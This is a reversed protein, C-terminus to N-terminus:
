SGNVMIYTLKRTHHILQKSQNSIKFATSCKISTHKTYWPSYVYLVVDQYREDVRRYVMIPGDSHDLSFQSKDSCLVAEWERLSWRLHAHSWRLCEAHHRPQLLMFVCPWRPGIHHEPLRNHVTRPHIHCLGHFPQHLSLLQRSVIVCTCWGSTNTNSRHRWVHLGLCHDTVDVKHPGFVDGFLVFPTDTYVLGSLLM